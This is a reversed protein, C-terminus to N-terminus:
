RGEFSVAFSACGRLPAISAVEAEVGSRTTAHLPAFPEVSVVLRAGKTRACWTAVLRGDLLVVGPAGTSRWLLRHLVRPALSARDRLQLLPDRPPLLRVGTVQPPSCLRDLDEGLLWRSRGDVRVECLEDEIESWWPGADRAAIGLWGAMEARTSPGYCRLYRRAVAGRAVAADLPAPAADLWQEVLVFPLTSGERHAFCVVRELALLRLCFHVVAEGWSQGPAYPGEAEWTRRTEVALDDAIAAALEAGLATIGLGRDRLVQDIRSRLHETAEDLGMGLRELADEVGVVFRRRAAEDPPRVGTTFVALDATPFFFPAGRMAWTHFLSRDEVAAPITGPGVDAVRAHLAIAASGPPSDQLGCAGAATLVGGADLRRHLHHAGLRYAMVQDVGM